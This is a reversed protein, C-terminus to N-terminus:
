RNLLIKLGMIEKRPPESKAVKDLLDNCCKVLLSCYDADKEIKTELWDKYNDLDFHKDTENITQPNEERFEKEYKYM